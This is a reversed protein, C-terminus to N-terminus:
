LCSAQAADLLTVIQSFPPRMGPNADWCRQMLIQIDAPVKPSMRPRLNQFAVQPLLVDINGAWPHESYPPVCCFIEWLLIGHSYVDVKKNYQTPRGFINCIVEPAMWHPTGCGVNDYPKDTIMGFDAVKAVLGAALFVNQGKIDRHMCGM